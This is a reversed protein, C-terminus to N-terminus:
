LIVYSGTTDDISATTDDVAFTTDEFPGPTIIRVCFYFQIIRGLHTRHVLQHGGGFLYVEHDILYYESTTPEWRFVM